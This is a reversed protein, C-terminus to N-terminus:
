RFSNGLVVAGVRVCLNRAGDSTVDSTVGCLGCLKAEEQEAPQTHESAKNPM